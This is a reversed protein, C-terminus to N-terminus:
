NKKEDSVIYYVDKTKGVQEFNRILIRRITKISLIKWWDQVVFTTIKLDPFLRKLEAVNLLVALEVPEVRECVSCILTERNHVKMFGRGCFCAQGKKLQEYTYPPVRTFPSKKKHLSALKQALKVDSETLKGTKMKLQNMYRNLHSPFIIPLNLPAQYLYFEPNVFVLHSEIPYSFGLDHCLRRLRSECRDLQELPDDVENGSATYWLGDKMMYDGDFNKVDNLFMRGNRMLISDIQFVRNHHELLLDNVALWDDSLHTEALRDFALEGIYGKELNSYYHADSPSLSMRLNLSRFTLLEESECRAKVVKM